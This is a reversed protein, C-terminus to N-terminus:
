QRGFNIDGNAQFALPGPAGGDDNPPNAVVPQQSLIAVALSGNNMPFGGNPFWLSAANYTVNDQWLTLALSSSGSRGHLIARGFTGQLLINGNINDTVSFPVPNGNPDALVLHWIGNPSMQYTACLGVMLGFTVTVNPNFGFGVKSRIFANNTALTFNGNCGGSYFVNPASTNPGVTAIASIAKVNSHIGVFITLCLTLKFLLSITKMKKM